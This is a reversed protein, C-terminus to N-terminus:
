MTECTDRIASIFDWSVFYIYKEYKDRSFSHERTRQSSTPCRFHSARKSNSFSSQVFGFHRIFGLCFYHPCFLSYCGCSFFVFQSHSLSCFRFFRSAVPLEHPLWSIYFFSNEWNQETESWKAATCVKEGVSESRGNEGSKIKGAKGSSLLWFLRYKILKRHPFTWIIFM